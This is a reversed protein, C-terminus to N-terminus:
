MRQGSCLLPDPRHPAAACEDTNEVCLHLSTTPNDRSKKQKGQESTAKRGLRDTEDRRLTIKLYAPPFPRFQFRIVRLVPSRGGTSYEWPRATNLDSVRANLIGEDTRESHSRTCEQFRGFSAIGEANGWFIGYMGVEAGPVEPHFERSLCTHVKSVHFEGGRLMRTSLTGRTPHHLSGSLVYRRKTSRPLEEKGLPTPQPADGCAREESHALGM